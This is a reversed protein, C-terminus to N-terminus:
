SIETIRRLIIQDGMSLLHLVKGGRGWAEIPAKIKGRVRPIRREPDKEQGNKRLVEHDSNFPNLDIGNGRQRKKVDYGKSLSAEGRRM